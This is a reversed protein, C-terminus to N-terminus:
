MIGTVFAGAEAPRSALAMAAKPLSVVDTASGLGDSPRFLDRMKESTIPLMESEVVLTLKPYGRRVVIGEAMKFLHELDDRSTYNHADVGELGDLERFRGVSTLHPSIICADIPKTSWLGTFSMARVQLGNHALITDLPDKKRLSGTNVNGCLVTDAEAIADETDPPLIDNCDEWATHGYEATDYDFGPVLLDITDLAYQISERSPGDGPLVLIRFGMTM